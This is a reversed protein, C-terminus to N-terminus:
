EKLRTTFEPSSGAYVVDALSDDAYAWVNSLHDDYGGVKTLETGDKWVLMLGHEEEWDCNAEVVVYSHGPMDDRSQVFILQPQVHTWIDEPTAPIGMQADLWDEGGVAYHFVRYYAHVHRSAKRRDQATLTLFKALAAADRATKPEAELELVVNDFWPVSLTERM